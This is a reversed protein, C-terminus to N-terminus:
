TSSLVVVGTCEDACEVINEVCENDRKICASCDEAKEEFGDEESKDTCEKRCETSNDRDTCEDVANCIKQCRGANGATDAVGDDCAMASLMIAGAFLSMGIKQM